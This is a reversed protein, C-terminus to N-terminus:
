HRITHWIGGMNAVKEIAVALRRKNLEVGVFRKNMNFATIATLGRGMCLDAVTSFEENEMVAKPTDMDDMGSFNFTTKEFGGRVLWSPNKRYYTIPWSQICPYIDALRKMFVDVNQKGIELYCVPAALSALHNFLTEGFEYFTKRTKQGSKTYFGRMNGTNWPSDTYILDAELMFDSLGDFLDLVAVYSNTRKEIWVEGKNIPYKEWSDGYKWETMM